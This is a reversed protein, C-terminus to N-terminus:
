NLRERTTMRVGSTLQFRNLTTCVEMRRTFVGGGRLVIIYLGPEPARGDCCGSSKEDTCNWICARCYVGCKRNLAWHEFQAHMRTGRSVRSLAPGLRGSDLNETILSVHIECVRACVQRGHRQHANESPQSVTGCVVKLDQWMYNSTHTNTHSDPPILCRIVLSSVCM